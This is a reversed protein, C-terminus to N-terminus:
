YDRQTIIHSSTEKGDLDVAVVKILLPAKADKDPYNRDKKCSTTSFLAGSLLLMIFLKKM